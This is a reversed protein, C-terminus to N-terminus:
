SYFYTEENINRNWIGLCWTIPQDTFQLTCYKIPKLYTKCTAKLHPCTRHPNRHKQHPPAALLESLWHLKYCSWLDPYKPSTCNIRVSFWLLQCSSLQTKYYFALLGTMYWIPHHLWQMEQAFIRVNQKSDCTLGLQILETRQLEWVSLSRQYEPSPNSTAQKAHVNPTIRNKLSLERGQMKAAAAAEAEPQKGLERGAAM